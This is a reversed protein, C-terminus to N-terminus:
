QSIYADYLSTLAQKGSEDVLTQKDLILQVTTNNELIQKDKVELKIFVHGNEALQNQLIQDFNYNNFLGKKWTGKIHVTSIGTQKEHQWTVDKLLTMFLDKITFQKGKYSIEIAQIAHIDKNTATAANKAASDIGSIAEKIENCGSLSITLFIISLIKTIIKM